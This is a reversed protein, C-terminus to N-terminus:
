PVACPAALPKTTCITTVVFYDGDGRTNAILRFDQAGGARAALAATAFGLADTTRLALWHSNQFRQWNALKTLYYRKGTM